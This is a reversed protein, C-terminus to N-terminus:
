ARKGFACRLDFDKPNRGHRAIQITWRIVEIQAEFGASLCHLGRRGRPEDVFLWLGKSFLGSLDQITAITTM